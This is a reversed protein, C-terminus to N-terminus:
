DLGWQCIPATYDGDADFDALGLNTTGALRVVITLGDNSLIEVTGDIFSGGGGWCDGPSGNSGTESMFNTFDPDSLPYVGGAAQKAPPIGISVQWVTEPNCYYPFSGGCIPGYNGIIVNLTSPDVGPGGSSSSVVSTSSSSGSGPPPTPTMSAYQAIATPAGITVIVGGGSGGQGTSGGGDGGDGGAGGGGTGGGIVTSTCAASGLAAAFAVLTLSRSLNTTKFM